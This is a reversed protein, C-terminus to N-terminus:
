SMYQKWTNEPLPKTLKSVVVMAVLSAPVAYAAPHIPATGFKLQCYVVVVLGVIVSAIGGEKTADKWYMGAVVPVFYTAAFLGWVLSSMILLFKPPYFTVIISIVGIVASVIQSATKLNKEDMDPNIFNKYMDYTVSSTCLLLMADYTSCAAAAAGALILAGVFPPIYEMILLPFVWDASDFQVPLTSNFGKRGEIVTM